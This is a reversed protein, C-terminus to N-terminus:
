KNLGIRKKYNNNKLNKIWQDNNLYWKITEKIGKYFNNKIKWQLEKKIKKSNLAYRKDHGPRDQVLIIKSKTIFNKKYIFIIKKALNINNMIIGSGINYSEGNKGKKLIKLLANCHDSAHIWERENIGKGYIPININDKLNLIIRPILKEPYQNPGYNNSCNTIITPLNYTRFYSKIILDASAKSSAYPSSPNYADDEKSFKNKKIDGYVEDTSIHIFKFNKDKNIKLYRKTAELINYVGVINSKVFVEPSDISRDVHTEAALNFIGIPKFKKLIKFILKKNNIDTKYFCYNKKNIKTLNQNNSSYSFKDINIVFYKKKILLKILHSGIFGLGGPVIIKKM